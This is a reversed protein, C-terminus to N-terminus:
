QRRAINIKGSVQLSDGAANALKSNFLVAIRGGVNGYRVVEFIPVGFGSQLDYTSGLTGDVDINLYGSNSGITTGNFYLALYAPIGTEHNAGEVYCYTSASFINDTFTTDIVFLKNNFGGGNLVFWNEGTNNPDCLAIDGLDLSDSGAPSNILAQYNADYGVVNLTLQTSPPVNFSFNGDNIFQYIFFDNGDSITVLGNTNQGSCSKLTGNVKSYIVPTNVILITCPVILDPVEYVQGVSLSPINIVQSNSGCNASITCPFSALVEGTYMGNQDTMGHGQTSTYVWANPVANGNCDIVRGSIGARPGQFDCNWFSFHSVTGVYKNGVKTAIGQEKWLSITEDFYWLPLTSPSTSIQSAAIPVNLIATTGSALQLSEGGSGTLQVGLMGYSYLIVEKDSADRAALDGGPIIFGFNPDDPSLHKLAINVIGNYPTGVSTVFSNPQFQVSSQDPLSITGGVTSSLSHTQANSTLVIKLYNVSNITPIFAHARNFFGAKAFHVICRDKNVGINKLVFLGDLDTQTTQGYASISVGKVPENIENLVRGVITAKQASSNDISTGDPESDSDKRCGNIIFITAFIISLIINLKKM